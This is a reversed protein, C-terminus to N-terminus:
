QEFNYKFNYFKEYFEKISNEAYKETVLDPHLKSSLWVSGLFCGPVPSDLSEIDGFLKYVKKNKIADLDRLNENNLVDEVSYKADSALIIYQPNWSILKEYNISAWYDDNIEDAVNRGGALAIMSSQYMGKSATSLFDSNGALYVTPKDDEKSAKLLLESLKNKQENIYSILEEARVSTNTAKGIKRIDDTLAEENEPNILLVNFGLKELSEGADKLKKPLIYLDANLAACKELNFNKASGVSPLNNLQPAALAYIPRKDTDAEIGSIQDSLGLAILISSSIYYGSVIKQDQQQKQPQKPYESNRESNASSSHSSHNCACLNFTFVSVIFSLFLFKFLRQKM